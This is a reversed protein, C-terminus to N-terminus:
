RCQEPHGIMIINDLGIALDRAQEQFRTLLVTPAMLPLHKEKEVDHIHGTARVDMFVGQAMDVAGQVPKNGILAGMLHMPQHALGKGDELGARDVIRGRGQAADQVHAFPDVFDIFDVQSPM